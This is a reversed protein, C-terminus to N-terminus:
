IVRKTYLIITEEGIGFRSCHEFINGTFGLQCLFIALQFEVCAQLKMGQSSFVPHPRILDALQQFHHSFM